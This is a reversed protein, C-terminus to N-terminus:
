NKIQGRPDCAPSREDANKQNEQCRYNEPAFGTKRGLGVPIWQGGKWWDSFEPHDM